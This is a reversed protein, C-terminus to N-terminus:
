PYGGNAVMQSWSAKWPSTRQANIYDYMAKKEENSAGTVSLIAQYAAYRSGTGYQDLGAQFATQHEPTVVSELTSKAAQTRQYVPQYTSAMESWSKTSNSPKLANWYKEQEAPDDTMGIIGGYLEANSYNGNGNADMERKATLIQQAEEDSFGASRAKNYASADAPVMNWFRVNDKVYQKQEENLDTRSDVYAEFQGQKISNSTEDGGEDDIVSKYTYLEVFTGPDMGVEEQAKSANRIWSDKDALNDGAAVKGMEASYDYVREIFKAKQEDTMNNYADTGVFRNLIDYATQGRTTQLRNYEESTLYEDNIQTNTQAQSPLVGEFGEGLDYLRQLEAELEGSQRRSVYAPNLFNNLARILVNEGTSETRGWADVYDRQQFDIGPIKNAWNGLLIQVANPIPSDRDIYTSQRTDELFTREIQGGITPLFQGLYSTAGNVILSLAGYDSYKINDLADNLSQLMSMELMPDAVRLFSKLIAEVPREKSNGNDKDIFNNFFEVGMFFPLAEPALWDLTYSYDGINLAYNQGGQLDNFDDQKEDGTGSGSVLGLSAMLVGFGVLGSGVLGASLSDIAEAATKNGLRVQALDYLGKVLGAPSYELARVAINAPTKKFPLVGEIFYSGIRKAKNDSNRARGWSTVMESFANIDRYTAQQAERIAFEQAAQKREADFTESLFDSTSIDNAKLYEALAEAYAPRSFWMDERDLMESNFQRLGELPKARFITRYRDIADEMDDYKSSQRILPEVNKFDEWGAQLRARDEADAINLPARTRGEIGTAGQIAGSVANKMMRVPMFGLNGLINRIHTRPNGLMALYRWSNFKDQWTAPVKSAIDRYILDQIRARDEPTEAALFQQALDPDIEIGEYEPLGTERNVKANRQIQSDLNEVQKSMAYLQGSPTMKNILNFAQLSQGLAKGYSVMESAIDMATIADGSNVANNYLTIGLASLDKNFRGAKMDSMWDEKARQFGKDQITQEARNTARQDSYAMRSFQGSALADEMQQAFENPTINANLLTSATKSTLRGQPNVRPVESPARGRNEMTAETAQRNVPHFGSEPTGAQWNAFQGAGGVSMAGRGEPLEPNVTAGEEQIINISPSVTDSPYGSLTRTKIPVPDGEENTLAVEHLYYRGANPSNEGTKRVIVGMNYDQGGIRIRGGFTVSDYGRGKWNQQEDIVQGNEIVDPVASFAIAKNRSIGHMISDRAGKRTLAVDGFGLRTVRNGLGAFFDAIQDSLRRGPQSAFENGSLEALVGGSALRDSNERLIDVLRRNVTPRTQSVSNIASPGEGPLRASTEETAGTQFTPGGMEDSTAMGPQTQNQRNLFEQRLQEETVEGADMALANQRLYHEFSDRTVAGPIAEKAQLYAENPGVRQDPNGLAENPTYGESLMQDLILEVKKAAAYNEQGRDTIIDQCVQIIEQRSLGLDAARELAESYRAVTGRGKQNSQTELSWNADEMLAQAAQVYYPHLQPHDFQFAKVSRNKVDETTRNDIHNEPTNYDASVEGSEVRRAQLIGNYENQIEDLESRLAQYNEPTQLSPDEAAAQARQMYDQYRRQFRAERAALIEDAASEQQAATAEGAAERAGAAEQAAVPAEQVPQAATRVARRSAALDSVAQEAEQAVQETQAMVQNAAQAQAEAQSTRTRAEQEQRTRQIAQNLLNEPEQVPEEAATEQARRVATGSAPSIHSFLTAGGGLTGGLAAGIGASQLLEQLSFEANPDQAARDAAYNLAYSASEETAEIGAQSAMNKLFSAGGSGKVIDVLRSLPIKETIVEIGGSVLGRTLAEQASVGQAGLEGAKAGSAQAGLVAAGLLPGGVTTAALGPAMNAGAYLVQALGKEVPSMGALAVDLQEQAKRLRWQGESYPSVPDNEANENMTARAQDALQQYREREAETEATRAMRTYYELNRKASQYANFASRVGSQTQQPEREKTGSLEAFADKVQEGFSRDDEEQEFIYNQGFRNRVANHTAKNGAELLSLLSGSIQNGVSGWFERIKEADLESFTNIERGHADLRKEEPEQDRAERIKELDYSDQTLRVNQGLVRGAEMLDANGTEEGLEYLRKAARLAKKGDANMFRNEDATLEPLIYDGGDGGGSYGGLARQYEAILHAQEQIRRGEEEFGEQILETGEDYQEKADQIIDRSLYGLRQDSASLPYQLDRLEQRYAARARRDTTRNLKEQLESIRTQREERERAERRSETAQTRRENEEMGALGGPLTADARSRLEELQQQYRKRANSDTSNSIKDQLKKAQTDYVAKGLKAGYSNQKKQTNKRTQYDQYFNGTFVGNNKSNSSSSSPKKSSSSSSGKNKNAQGVTNQLWEDPTMVGLKMNLPM